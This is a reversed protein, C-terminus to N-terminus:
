LSLDQMPGELNSGVNLVTYDSFSEQAKNVPRLLQRM